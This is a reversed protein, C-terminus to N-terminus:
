FAIMRRQLKYIHDALPLIYIIKRPAIGPHIKDSRVHFTILSGKHWTIRIYWVSENTCRNPNYVLAIRAFNDEHVKVFKESEVATSEIKVCGWCGLVLFWTLM